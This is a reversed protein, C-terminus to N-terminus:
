SGLKFAELVLAYMTGIKFGNLSEYFLPVTIPEDAPQDRRRWNRGYILRSTLESFIVLIIAITVDQQAAQGAIAAIAVGFFNGLLLSIVLISIRRWPNFLWRNFQTSARDFLTSLRTRQM